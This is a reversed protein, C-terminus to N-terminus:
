EKTPIPEDEIKDFLTPEAENFRMLIAKNKNDTGFSGVFEPNIIYVKGELRMFNAERLQKFAIQATSYAMGTKNATYQISYYFQHDSNLNDLIFDVIKLIRSGSLDTLMEMFAGLYVRNWGKKMERVPRLMVDCDLIEGTKTNILQQQGLYKTKTTM